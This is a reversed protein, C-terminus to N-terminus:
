KELYGKRWDVDLGKTFEEGSNGVPGLENAWEEFIELNVEGKQKSNVVAVGSSTFLIM